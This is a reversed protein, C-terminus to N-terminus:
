QMIITTIQAMLPTNGIGRGIALRLLKRADDPNSPDMASVGPLGGIAPIAKVNAAASTLPAGSLADVKDLVKKIDDVKESSVDAVTLSLPPLQNIKQEADQQEAGSRVTIRQLAGPISGAFEYEQLDVFAQPLTYGATGLNKIIAALIQKRAAGMQSILAPVTQDYFANKDFSSKAGILGGSLASFVEKGRESQILVGGANLGLLAIDTGINGAKSEKSLAVIFDRFNADIVNLRSFVVTNRYSIQDVGNKKQYEALVDAGLYSKVGEKLEETTLSPRPVGELASTCGGLMLLGAMMAVPFANYCQVKRM